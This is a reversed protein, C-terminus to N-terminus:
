ALVMGPIPDYVTARAALTAYETALEDGTMRAWTRYHAAETVPLAPDLTSLSRHVKAVFHEQSRFQWERVIIPSWMGGGVSCDHNGMAITVGPEYRFAVKPLPKAGPERWSPSWYQAMRAFVKRHHTERLFGLGCWFEDADFPVIWDAGDEGAITALASMIESQRFPRDRNPQEMVEVPGDLDYLVDLTGDDSGGDVVYVRDVGEDLLHRVTLGIIDAEDL